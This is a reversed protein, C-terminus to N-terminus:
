KITALIEESTLILLEKGDKDNIVNGSFKPFLVKDGVKILMPILNGNDATKGGGVAIVTGQQPKEVSAQPLVLGSALVEQVEDVKVLIRDGMPEISMGDEQKIKIEIDGEDISILSLDKFKLDRAGRLNYKILDGVEVESSGGTNYVRGRDRFGKFPIYLITSFPIDKVPEIFVRNFLPKIKVKMYM